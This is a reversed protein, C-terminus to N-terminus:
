DDVGPHNRPKRPRPNYMSRETPSTLRLNHVDEKPIDRDVIKRTDDDGKSKYKHSIDQLGPTEIDAGTIEIRVGANSVDAQTIEM